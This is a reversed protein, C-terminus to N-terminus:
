VGIAYHGTGFQIGELSDDKHTPVGLIGSITGRSKENLKFGRGAYFLIDDTQTREFQNQNLTDAM